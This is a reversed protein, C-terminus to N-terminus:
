IISKIVKIVKDFETKKLDFYIPISLSSNAYNISNAADNSILWQESHMNHENINDVRIPQFTGLGIQLSLEVKEIGKQNGSGSIPNIIFRIKM